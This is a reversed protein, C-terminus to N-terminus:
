PKRDKALALLLADAYDVADKAVETTSWTGNERTLIGQLALGAFHERITLGGQRRITPPGEPTLNGDQPYKYRPLEESM